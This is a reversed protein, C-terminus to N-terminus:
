TLTPRTRFNPLDAAGLMRGRGEANTPTLLRAVEKKKEVSVRRNMPQQSCARLRREQPCDICWFRVILLPRKLLARAAM